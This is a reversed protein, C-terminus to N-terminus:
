IKEVAKTMKLEGRRAALLSERAKWGMSRSAGRRESESKPPCHLHKAAAASDPLATAPKDAWSPPRMVKRESLAAGGFERIPFSLRVLGGDRLDRWGTSCSRPRPRWIWAPM